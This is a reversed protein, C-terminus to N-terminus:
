GYILTKINNGCFAYDAQMKEFINGDGQTIGEAPSAIDHLRSKAICPLCCEDFKTAFGDCQPGISHYAYRKM